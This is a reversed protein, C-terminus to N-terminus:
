ADRAITSHMFIGDMLVFVCLLFPLSFSFLCDGHHFQGLHIQGRHAEGQMQM